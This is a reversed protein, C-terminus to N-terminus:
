FEPLSDTLWYRLKLKAKIMLKIILILRSNSPFLKLSTDAVNLQGTAHRRPVTKFAKVSTPSPVRFTSTVKQYYSLYFSMSSPHHEKKWEQVDKESAVKGVRNIGKNINSDVKNPKQQLGFVLLQRPVTWTRIFSCSGAEQGVRTHCLWQQDVPVM